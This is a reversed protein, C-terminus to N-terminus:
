RHEKLTVDFLEKHIAIALQYDEIADLERGTAELSMARLAHLNAAFISRGDTVKLGKDAEELARDYRKLAFHISGLAFHADQLLPLVRADGPRELELIRALDAEAAAVKGASLHADASRRLDLVREAWMAARTRAPRVACSTAILACLVAASVGLVSARARKTM